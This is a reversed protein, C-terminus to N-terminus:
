SNKQRYLKKFHDVELNAVRKFSKESSFLKLSENTLEDIGLVARSLLAVKVAHASFVEIESKTIGEGDDYAALISTMVDNLQKVEIWLEVPFIAAGEEQLESFDRISEGVDERAQDEFPGGKDSLVTFYIRVRAQKFVVKKVLDLQQNFLSERLASSRAKAIFYLGLGSSILTATIGALGVILTVIEPKM